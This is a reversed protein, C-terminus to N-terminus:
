PSRNLGNMSVGRRVIWRLPPFSLKVLQQYRHRRRRHHHHHHHHRQHLPVALLRPRRSASLRRRPPIPLLQSKSTAIGRLHLALRVVKFLHHRLPALQLQTAIPSRLYLPLHPIRVLTPQLFGVIQLIHRQRLASRVRRPVVVSHWIQPNRCAVLMLGHLRQVAPIRSTRQQCTRSAPRWSRKSFFSMRRRSLLLNTMSLSRLHSSRVVQEVM